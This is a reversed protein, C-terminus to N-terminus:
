DAIQRLITSFLAEACEEESWKETDLLLDPNEPAEYGSDIGTFSRLNGALAKKYLQKPDRKICTELEARM